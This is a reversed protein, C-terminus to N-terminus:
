CHPLPPATVRCLTIVTRNESMFGGPIVKLTPDVSHVGDALGEIANVYTSFPIDVALDPENIASYVSIGWGTIGQSVLWPSNPRFLTAFDRGIAFWKNYDGLPGWESYYEFLIM